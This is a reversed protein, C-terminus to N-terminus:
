RWECKRDFTQGECEEAWTCIFKNDANTPPDGRKITKAPKPSINYDGNPSAQPDQFAGLSTESDRRSHPENMQPDTIQPDYPNPPIGAGNSQSMEGFSRKRGNQPPELSEDRPTEHLDGQLSVPAASPQATQPVDDMFAVNLNQSDNYNPTDHPYQYSGNPSGSHLAPDQPQQLGPDTSPELNDLDYHQSTHPSSEFNSDLKVTSSETIVRTEPNYLHHSRQQERRPSSTPHFELSGFYLPQQPPALTIAARSQNWYNGETTSSNSPSNANGTFVQPWSGSFHAPSPNHASFQLAHQQLSDINDLEVLTLAAVTRNFLLHETCYQNTAQHTFNSSRLCFSPSAQDHDPRFSPQVEAMEQWSSEEGGRVHSTGLDSAAVHPWDNRM